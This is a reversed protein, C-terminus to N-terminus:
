RGDGGCLADMATGVANVTSRAVLDGVTEACLVFDVTEGVTLTESCIVGATGGRVTDLTTTSATGLLCFVARDDTSCFGATKLGDILVLVVLIVTGLNVLFDWLIHLM